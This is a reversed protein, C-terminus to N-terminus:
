WRKQACASIAMAIASTSIRNEGTDPVGVGVVVVVAVGVEAGVFVGVGVAVFVGLGVGVAPPLQLTTYVIVLWHVPPKPTLKVIVLVPVVLMLPQLICNENGM